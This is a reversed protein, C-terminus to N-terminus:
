ITKKHFNTDNQFKRLIFNDFYRHCKHDYTSTKSGTLPIRLEWNKATDGSDWSDAWAYQIKQESTPTDQTEFHKLLCNVTPQCPTNNKDIIVNGWSLDTKWSINQNQYNLDTKM